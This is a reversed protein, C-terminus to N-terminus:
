NLGSTEISEQYNEMLNRLHKKESGIKWLLYERIASSPLKEAESRLKGPSVKESAIGSVIFLVRFRSEWNKRCVGGPIRCNEEFINKMGTNLYSLCAYYRYFCRTETPLSKRSFMKMFGEAASSYDGKLFMHEPTVAEVNLCVLSLLLLFLARQMM